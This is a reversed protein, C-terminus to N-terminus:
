KNVFSAIKGGLEPICELSIEANEMRLSPFDAFRTETISTM